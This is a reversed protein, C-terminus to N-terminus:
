DIDSESAPSFDSDGKLDWRPDRVWKLVAGGSKPPPPPPPKPLYQEANPVSKMKSSHKSAPCVSLLDQPPGLFYTALDTIQANRVFALDKLEQMVSGYAPTPPGSSSSSTGRPAEEMLRQKKANASQSWLSDPKLDREIFGRAYQINPIICRDLSSQVKQIEEMSGMVESDVM